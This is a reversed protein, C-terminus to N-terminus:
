LFFRTPRGDRQGGVQTPVFGSGGLSIGQVNATFFDLAGSGALDDQVVMVVKWGERIIIPRDGTARSMIYEIALGNKGPQTQTGALTFFGGNTQIAEPSDTLGGSLDLLDNAIDGNPNTIYLLLGKTLAPRTGFENAAWEKTIDTLAFIFRELFFTFGESPSFSFEVPTVDGNVAMNASGNSDRLYKGVYEGPECWQRTM